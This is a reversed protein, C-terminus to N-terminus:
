AIVALTGITWVLFIGVSMTLLRSTRRWTRGGVVASGVWLASMAVTWWGPVLDSSAVVLVAVVAMFGVSVLGYLVQREPSM